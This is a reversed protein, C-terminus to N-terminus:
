YITVPEPTVSEADENEAPDSAEEDAAPIEEEVEGVFRSLLEFEAREEDSLGFNELGQVFLVLSETAEEDYGRESAFARAAKDAAASNQKAKDCLEEYAKLLSESNIKFM